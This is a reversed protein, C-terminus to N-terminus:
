KLTTIACDLVLELQKTAQDMAKSQIIAKQVAIQGKGTILPVNFQRSKGFSDTKVTATVTFNGNNIHYQLPMVSNQMVFGLERLLKFTKNRTLNLAKAYEGITIGDCKAIAYGVETYPKDQEIKELAQVYLRAVKLPTLETDVSPDTKPHIEYGCLHYAYAVAGAQLLTSILAEKRKKNADKTPKWAQLIIPLEVAKILNGVSRVGVNTIVEFSESSNNGVSCVGIIKTLSKHDIGLLDCILGQSFYPEKSDQDIYVSINTVPHTFISLKM